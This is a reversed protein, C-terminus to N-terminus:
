LIDPLSLTGSFSKSFVLVSTQGSLSWKKEKLIEEYCALARMIGQGTIAVRKENRDIDESIKIGAETLEIRETLKFVTV